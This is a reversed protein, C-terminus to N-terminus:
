KAPPLAKLSPQATAVPLCEVIQMPPAQLPLNWPNQLLLWCIESCRHLSAIAWAQFAKGGSFANGTTLPRVRDLLMKALSVANSADGVPRLKAFANMAKETDAIDLAKLASREAAGSLVRGKRVVLPAAGEATPFLTALKAALAMPAKLAIWALGTSVSCGSSVFSGGSAFLRAMVPEFIDDSLGSLLWVGPVFRARCFRATSWTNGLTTALSGSLFAANNTVTM